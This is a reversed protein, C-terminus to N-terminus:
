PEPEVHCVTHLVITNREEYCCEGPMLTIDKCLYLYGDPGLVKEPHPIQRRQPIVVQGDASRNVGLNYHRRPKYLSVEATFGPMKMGEKM